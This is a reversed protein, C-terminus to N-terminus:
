PRLRSPDAGGIPSNDVNSRNRPLYFYGFWLLLTTGAIAYRVEDVNILQRGFAELLAALFLMVVCGAAITAASNGAKKASDLRSLRGPFAVAGGILFGAAGALVIAFLETVGHILLWGMVEYGLGRDFFLACFAGLIAGNYALLFATPVGFAFGLAFAYLAVQSNNSFLRGAFAALMDESAAGGDYLTSRLYETSANPTRDGMISASFSWFWEMDSMCLLFALLAMGFMCFAALLTAGWASRVAEPWDSSFFRVLRQNLTTRTGYVFFYARTCLSELYTVLNRDLSINRAVSLSSVAQRYLGPLAMMDEDSLSRVGKSEARKLITELAQWGAEREERFRYSKLVDTM